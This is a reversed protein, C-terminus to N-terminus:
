RPMRRRLDCACLGHWRAGILDARGTTTRRRTRTPAAARSRSVARDALPRSRGRRLAPQLVAPLEASRPSAASRVPRNPREREAMARGRDGMGDGAPQSGLAPDPCARRPACSGALAEADRRCRRSSRLRRACRRCGIRPAAASPRSAACRRWGRPTRGPWCSTCRRICARGCSRPWAWRPSASCGRGCRITRWRPRAACAGLAARRRAPLGAFDVLIAGSLNRLRIQRALAPLVARNVALHAAAKGQRAPWPAARTSTSRWWRRRRTSTCGRAAAAPGGRTAGAGAVQEEVDDDFARPVVSCAIAWRRGCGRLWRADDVLVPADPHRRALELLAGPGRAPLRGRAPASAPRDAAAGQRGARRPHRPGVRPRGRAPGRRGRQGASVGRRRGAGRFRGGDGAVRAIVRGRHLDGVGDPAGPRWIAYDLLAGDM